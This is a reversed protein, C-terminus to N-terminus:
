RSPISNVHLDGGNSSKRDLNPMAVLEDDRDLGILSDGSDTFPADGPALQRHLSHQLM